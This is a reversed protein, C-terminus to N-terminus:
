PKLTWLSSGLRLHDQCERGSHPQLLARLRHEVHLRRQLQRGRQQRQVAVQRALRLTCCEQAFHPELNVPNLSKAFSILSLLEM